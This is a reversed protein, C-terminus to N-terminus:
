PVVRIFSDGDKPSPRPSVEVRGPELGKARLGEIICPAADVTGEFRDHMLIVDTPQAQSVVADCVQEAPKGEGSPDNWDEPDHRYTWSARTLRLERAIADVAPSHRDFPPRYLAPTFGVEEALVENTGLLQRRAQEPETSTLDMHDYTHNGVVHGEALEQEVIEPHEETQNGQVFFTAPADYAALTELLEPTYEEHPGDDYTLAVYGRPDTLATTGPAPSDTPTSSDDPAASGAADAAAAPSGPANNTPPGTAERIEGWSTAVMILPAAVFALAILLGFRPGTRDEDV